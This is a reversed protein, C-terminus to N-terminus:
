EKKGPLFSIQSIAIKNLEKKVSPMDTNLEVDGMLENDTSETFDLDLRFQVPSKEMTGNNYSQIYGGYDWGFGSFNIKQGNIRLLDALSSGIKLGSATHYPADYMGSQLFAIDKHYNTDQWYVVIEKRDGPYIITVDVSDVCEAGCIREDKVNETGFIKQLGAFDTRDNIAGWSSDTILTSDIVNVKKDEKTNESKDDNACGWASAIFFVPVLLKKM